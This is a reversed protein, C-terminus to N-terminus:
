PKKRGVVIGPASQDVVRVRLLGNRITQSPVIVTFPGNGAVKQAEPSQLAADIQQRIGEIDALSKTPNIKPTFGHAWENLYATSGNIVIGTIDARVELEAESTPQKAESVEPIEVARESKAEKPVDFRKEIRGPEASPPLKSQAIAQPMAGIAILWVGAALLCASRAQERTIVSM